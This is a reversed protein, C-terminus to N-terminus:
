SLGIWVRDAAHKRKLAAVHAKAPNAGVEAAWTRIVDAVEPVQSPDIQVRDFSKIYGVLGATYVVGDPMPTKFTCNGTFAVVGKFYGKPMGLCEVLACIHGYNQRIPNPIEKKVGRRFSQTWSGDKAKGFIWGSYNKTEIVFIGYRSVVIHDIQSTGGGTRPLYVDNLLVYEDPLGARLRRAVGKEGREGKKRPSNFWMFFLSMAVCVVVLWAWPSGFPVDFMM